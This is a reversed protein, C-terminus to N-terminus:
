ATGRPKQPYLLRGSKRPGHSTQYEGLEEDSIRLSRKAPEGQEAAAALEKRLRLSCIDPADQYRARHAVFAENAITLTFIQEDTGQRKVSFSYERVLPRVKFGKYEIQLSDSL